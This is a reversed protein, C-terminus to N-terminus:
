AKPHASDYVKILQQMSLQTYRQTTSLSAHGLLEQIARLDAGESLLHTAFAHRLSHPHLSPDGACAQAYKKVISGVSRATLRRFSGGWRHVFLARMDKPPGLKARVAMYRDLAEGARAGYPVQREKRGKGRVRIWRERTDLDDVDLGVLESVRLGAGYLLEFIVRDRLVKDEFRDRKEEYSVQDVLRNADEPNMVSPLKRPIKPTSVTRAPNNPLGEQQVLYDFFARLASLRRALTAQTLGRNRQDAMFERIGLRTIENVAPPHGGQSALFEAFQALDKSYNLVTSESVNRLSLSALFRQAAAALSRDPQPEAPM